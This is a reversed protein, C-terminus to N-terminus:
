RRALLTKEYIGVLKQIAAKVSYKNCVTAYAGEVLKQRLTQSELVDRMGEAFLGPSGPSILWGNIGHEIVGPIGGVSTAVIPRRAAMAELMVMPLGEWRSPLVLLDAVGLLAPVDKRMGLFTVSDNLTATMHQQLDPLLPGDGAILVRFPTNGKALFELAEILIDPGKAPVLRGAFLIVQSDRPINLEKHMEDIKAASMQFKAPDISNPVVEIKNNLGPLWALLASKVEESVAIIKAYRQYIFWDVGKLLPYHRRGNTVNHESFVYVPSRIMLSVLSVFLSTPFLHAHVVDYKGNRILKALPFLAFFNYKGKPQYSKAAPDLALNHVLVGNKELEDAFHGKSYLVCVEVDHGDNHLQTLWHSVLAEAGGFSLRSIVHLIRM